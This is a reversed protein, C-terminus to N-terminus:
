VKKEKILSFVLLGAAVCISSDAINFAPWRLNNIGFDLFDIVSGRFIRDILNGFGGALILCFCYKMLTTMKKHTKYIFLIIACLFIFVLIIFLANKNQFASFAIGTNHFNVIDFIKLPKIIEIVGGYSVFKDILIKSVQDLVLIVFAILVPKRM